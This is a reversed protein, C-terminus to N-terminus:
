HGNAQGDIEGQQIKRGFSMANHTDVFQLIKTVKDGEKNFDLIWMFEMPWDWVQGATSQTWIHSSHVSARQQKTDVTVNNIQIKMGKFARFKAVLSEEYQVNSWGNPHFKQEFTAPGIRRHAEPVLDRSLISTDQALYADLHSLVFSKSTEAMQDYLDM